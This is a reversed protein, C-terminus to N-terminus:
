FHWGYEIGLIDEKLHVNADGGGFSPPISQQGNVTKEFGHAYFGSWESHAGVRWTFGFTVHNQITGPALINFFTQSSPIPETSHSFGARLTLTPSFNEVVGLKVVKVDKWGFGPGGSSGLFVGGAPNFNSLPNGVSSVGGYQIVQYDAAVSWTASPQYALGLGYNAPIDFNGNDAFLGKYKSFSGNIKSSWTAGVRWQDDIQGIWGLHVGVGTSSDSGNNSVDAPSTSAAAFGQLGQAKFRQYAFNLGIGLVNQSTVKYAVSPTVILQELNVGGSGKGGIPAFPNTNYQTNMGGNGYVALGISTESNLQRSYGFSPIFFLSKGNGSYNGDLSGAPGLNNGSVSAGRDPQFLDLGLNIQTDVFATGAPNSAAALGDQPLAIGVGAVAETKAGYGNSFYGNTAHAAHPLACALGLSILASLLPIQSPPLHRSRSTM